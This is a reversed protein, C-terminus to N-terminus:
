KYFGRIIEFSGSVLFPHLLGELVERDAALSLIDLWSMGRKVIVNAEDFLKVLISLQLLTDINGRWHNDQSSGLDLGKMFASHAVLAVAGFLEKLINMAPESCIIKDIPIESVLHCRLSLNKVFSMGTDSVRHSIVSPISGRNNTFDEDLHLINSADDIIQLLELLLNLCELGPDGKHIREYEIYEESSDHHKEEPQSESDFSRSERPNQDALHLIRALTPLFDISVQIYLINHLISTPFIYTVSSSSMRVTGILVTSSGLFFESVRYYCVSPSM